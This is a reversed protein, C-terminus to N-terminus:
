YAWFNFIYSLHILNNPGLKKFRERERHNLKIGYFPIYEAKELGGFYKLWKQPWPLVLPLFQIRLVYKQRKINSCFLPSSLRM